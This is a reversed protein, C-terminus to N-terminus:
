SGLVIGRLKEVVQAFHAADLAAGADSGFKYATAVALDDSFNFAAEFVKRDVGANKLGVMLGLLIAQTAMVETNVTAIDRAFNTM